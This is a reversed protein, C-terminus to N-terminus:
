HEGRTPPLASPALTIAEPVGGAGICPILSNNIGTAVSAIGIIKMTIHQAIQGGFKISTGGIKVDSVTLTSGTPPGFEARLIHAPSGRLIRFWGTTPSGDPLTFSSDDLKDIYLGVPDALTITRGQRALANVAAGIAPDSNRREDGFGSCKTLPIAAVVEVGSSNKRRVTAEAGLIVEAFLNNARETLHMAGQGTNWKNLRNYQGGPGTLDALQVAPNIFKRYLQLLVQPAETFLFDYYDWGECTFQVSTINGATSKSVFWELYEDQPRAQGPTAPEAGAFNPPAGPASSLFKRPFGNWTILGASGGVDPATSGHTLPNYFQRTSGQALLAALRNEGNTFYSSVLDSWKQQMSASSALDSNSGPPNFKTIKM